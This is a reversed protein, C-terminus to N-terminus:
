GGCSRDAISEKTYNGSTIVSTSQRTKVADSKPSTIRSGNFQCIAKGRLAPKWCKSFACKTKGSCRTCAIKGDAAVLGPQIHLMKM